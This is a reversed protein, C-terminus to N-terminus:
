TRAAPEAPVEGCAQLALVAYGTGSNSPLRGRFQPWDAPAVRNPRFTGGAHLPLCSALLVATWLVFRNWMAM